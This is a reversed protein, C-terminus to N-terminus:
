RVLVPVSVGLKTTAGTVKDKVGDWGLYDANSRGLRAANGVQKLNGLLQATAGMTGEFVSSTSKSASPTASLNQAAAQVTAQSAGTLQTVEELNCGSYLLDLIRETQTIAM